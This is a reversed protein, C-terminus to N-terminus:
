EAVTVKAPQLVKGQLMFGPQAEALITGAVVGERKEQAVAEHFEPNFQEGETKVEEIGVSKLFTQFQSLIHGFGKVWELDAQDPPVHAVARKINAYLPLLNVILAANAFQITEAARQESERKFNIYDAKARQWGALYEEAQTRLKAIELEDVM